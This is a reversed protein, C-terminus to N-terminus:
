NGESFMGKLMQQMQQMEIALQMMTFQLAIDEKKDKEKTDTLEQTKTELIVEERKIKTEYQNSNKTIIKSLNSMPTRMSDSVDKFYTVLKDSNVNLENDFVKQNTIEFTIYNPGDKQPNNKQIIGMSGLSIDGQKAIANRMKSLETELSRAVNHDNSHIETAVSEAFQNYQSILEEINQGLTGSDNKISVTQFTNGANVKRIDLAIGDAVNFQNKTNTVPAGNVTVEANTGKHPTASAINNGNGFEIKFDENKGANTGTISIFSTNDAKNDIRSAKFNKQNKSFETNIKNIVENITDDHKVEVSIKNGTTTIKITDNVGIKDGFGTKPVDTGNNDEITKSLITHSASAVQNIKVEIVQPDVGKDVVIGLYDSGNGVDNTGIEATKPKAEAITGLSKITKGFEVKKESIQELATKSAEITDIKSQQADIRKQKDDYDKDRAFQKMEKMMAPDMGLKDSILSM